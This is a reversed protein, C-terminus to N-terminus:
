YLLSFMVSVKQIESSRREFEHRLQTIKQDQERKLGRIYEEHTIEIEKIATNLTRRDEKIDSEGTIHHSTSNLHYSSHPLSLYLESDAISFQLYISIFRVKAIM